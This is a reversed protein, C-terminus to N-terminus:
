RSVSAPAAWGSAFISVTSNDSANLGIDGNCKRFTDGDLQQSGCKPCFSM